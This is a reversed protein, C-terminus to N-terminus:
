HSICIRKQAREGFRPDLEGGGPRERRQWADIAAAILRVHAKPCNLLQELGSMLAVRQGSDDGRRAGACQTKMEEAKRAARRAFGELTFIMGCPVAGPAGPLLDKVAQYEAANEVAVNGRIACALAGLDGLAEHLSMVVDAVKVWQAEADKWNEQDPEQGYQWAIWCLREWHEAMARQVTEAANGLVRGLAERLRAQEQDELVNGAAPLWRIRM